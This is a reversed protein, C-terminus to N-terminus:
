EVKLKWDSFHADAGADGAIVITGDIKLGVTYNKGASVAVINKWDSVNCQGDDNKGTAVVTGDKKLGVTHYGGASVAVINKWGTVDCQDNNNKGTAVVTRDKRLGATHYGGASVAVINKWGSVKFQGDDNKGVAVVTGDKKLGVTHYEGASVAVINKWGTVNCQDSYNYGTAVVTGDKKLGITHYGGASVAAINKWDSVNCQGDDNKGAAVVAGDKKLGATHYGGASVAVINKWGTVNCQGDSHYGSAVVIGGKKLGVTHYGGASINNQNKGTHKGAINQILKASDKYNIIKEFTVAAEAYRGSEKLKVASNYIAQNMKEKSDKYDGMKEFAAAAEAYKGSEKLKVASNYIAQNMKEKSDKYDGMKEFAAAAETYKGSEFLKVANNYAKENEVIVSLENIQEESDKYNNIEKYVALAEEYKGSKYLSAADNYKKEPIFYMTMSFYIGVAIIIASVVLGTVIKQKRKKKAASELMLEIDVAKANYEESRKECEKVKVGSDNFDGLSAFAKIAKENITLAERVIVADMKEVGTKYRCAADSCYKQAEKYKIRNEITQIKDTCKKALEDADKYGSISELKKRAKGIQAKTSKPEYYITLAKRYDIEKIRDDYKRVYEDADKYGSISEFKKRAEGIQAKTSKPENYVSVARQYVSEKYAKLNRENIFEIYGKMEAKLTDDGFRQVNKYIVNNDFPEAQNKLDDRKRVKLVAMLKGLYAQANEPDNDLVKECYEDASDWDGDELFLSVRRLLANIKTGGSAEPAASAQKATKTDDKKIVKKIGRVIDNIFGIKGMDQAQLHAFEEPLEYADMNKYCPILLKSRDKKMMKLFRSWENKVWVANFYEPKTGIALMVRASNLAAFICPEYASGLKDELTIAAYFVNFGENKLQYYIDNAIASDQTRSGSEDTEKYCIFVDYPEEKASLALIEKQIRDIEKAESEYVRRSVSDACRLAEKYDDDAIISDFSTRHCTPIRKFTQPDEVYEIGFKCLILGWHAEADEPSNQVLKEYLQEAKDFESKMRLINARNFLAQLNEDKATTVTQMTGCYECECVTMGESVELTGGCMKCKLVAM